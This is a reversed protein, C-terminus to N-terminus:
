REWSSRPTGKTTGLVGVRLRAKGLVRAVLVQGPRGSGAILDVSGQGEAEESSRMSSRPLVRLKEREGGGGFQLMRRLAEGPHDGAAVLALFPHDLGPRSWDTSRGVQGASASLPGGM